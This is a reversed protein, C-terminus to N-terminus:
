GVRDRGGRRSVSFGAFFGSDKLRLIGTVARPVPYFMKKSDRTRSPGMAAKLPSDEFGIRCKPSVRTRMKLVPSGPPCRSQAGTKETKM